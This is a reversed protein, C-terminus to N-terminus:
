KLWIIAHLLLVSGLRILLNRQPKAPSHRYNSWVPFLLGLCGVLGVTLMVFAGPLHLLNFLFALVSVSLFIGSLAAYILKRAPVSQYTEQKFIDRFRLNNFLAFGFYFYLFALATLSVILLVDAGSLQFIKFVASLVALSLCILETTRM